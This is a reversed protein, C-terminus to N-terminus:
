VDIVEFDDLKKQEPTYFHFHVENGNNKKNLEIRERRISEVVKSAATIVSPLKDAKVSDLKTKLTAVSDSLLGLAADHALGLKIQASSEPLLEETSPIQSENEERKPQITNIPPRPIPPIIPSTSPVSSQISPRIGIGFLSMSNNKNGNSNNNGERLKNMLNNPNNLKENAKENSILM